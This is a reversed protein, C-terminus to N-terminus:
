RYLTVDGAKIISKGNTCRGTVKWVYVDMKALQGKVYGDWGVNIDESRYILEGWRNYIELVYDEVGEYVPHFIETSPNYMDYHGGSPGSTNPKFANPFIIKCTEDVRLANEKLMLDHCQPETNRTVLLSIDYIGPSAYYYVPEYETSTNGDGFNWLYFDGLESTNILVLPEEPINIHAKQLSFRARPNEFVEIYHYTTDRGGDGIAILMVQYLGHDVFTHEPEPDTSISGDDFIWRYTHAYLSHNSFKVTLPECGTTISEFEAEPVPSTITVEQTYMSQCHENSAFLAVVYTKTSMDNPDWIYTHTFPDFINTQHTNGDGFEWHFNWYGDNTLNNLTITADPYAQKKPLATFHAIPAPFVKVEKQITDTCGYISEAALEITFVKEDIEQNHFIHLPNASTSYTGDNMDWVYSNALSSQNLFRLTLPSCGEWINNETTFDATVEPFVTIIQQTTAECGFESNTWLTLTFNVPAQHTNSFTHSFEGEMDHQTGEGLDWLIESAGVSINELLPSFPSCGSLESITFEAKPVPRVVIEQSTSSSCGYHSQALLNITFTASETHSYNTFAMQPHTNQSTNGNGFDWFYMDGGQTLNQFSTQHIHCGENDTTFGAHIEPYIVIQQSYSNSCGHLNEVLLTITFVGPGQGAAQTYDHTFHNQSHYLTDGDGMSWIFSEAGVAFNHVNVTHPGCAPVNPTSFFAMPRPHVTIQHWTTDSCANENYAVLMVTYITDQTHSFNHFTHSHLPQLNQSTHGNGYDWLYASTATAGESLNTFDVTLPHCGQTVNPEFAATINPYIVVQQVLTDSCLFTNEVFLQINFYGPGTGPDHDYNHYVEPEDYSFTGSGDGFDWSYGTAGVSSHTIEITHPSCGPTNEVLFSALPKPYVQVQSSGWAFCGHLSQAFLEVHYLTDHTHSFNHFQHEPSYGTHTVGDGFTWFFYNAYQTANNFNVDLPHCGEEIHTYSLDVEPFVTITRVITDFCNFSNRAILEIDFTIVDGTTNTFLWTLYDASADTTMSHQGGFDWHLESAGLSHNELVMLFPSCGQNNEITFDARIQPYVTIQHHISDRCLYESQTYLWVDFTAVDTYSTNEFIHVPNIAVSSGGDGFEWLHGNDPVFTSGNAFEVELPSCGETISPTFAAIIKPFITVPRILTDSCLQPNSVILQINYIQPDALDHDFLHYLTDASSFSLPSGDGFDWIYDHAGESTNILMVEYPNCSQAPFFDFGAKLRPHITIDISISDRCFYDSKVRLWVTRVISTDTNNIFTHWVSDTAASSGGDGFDWLIETATITSLNAFTVEFPSCGETESAWLDAIVNPYVQLTTSHSDNCHENSVQQQILFELIGDTNNEFTIIGPHAVDSVVGNGFDWSYDTAGIAISAFDVELPHCGSIPNLTFGAEIYPYVTVPISVTQTCLFTSSVVTLSVNYITDNASTNYFTHTPHTQVSFTGDGFDWFYMAVLGQTQNEFEVTVPSCGETPDIAIFQPIVPPWIKVKRQRSHICGEASIAVLTITYEVVETTIPYSYVFSSDATTHVTNGDGFDWIYSVAGLSHNAFHVVNSECVNPLHLYFQSFVFPLIEFPKIAFNTCDNGDTYEYMIYYNGAGIDAPLFNSFNIYPLNLVELNTDLLYYTGGPPNGGSLSYGPTNGCVKITDPEAPFFVEPLDNVTVTVSAYVPPSFPPPFNADTVEVTYVTTQTPSVSPLSDTVDILSFDHPDSTWFFNYDGSGGGPLVWLTTSSGACIAGPLGVVQTIHLDGGIVNVIVDDSLQCGTDLDVVTLTFITTETLNVTEPNPINPNNLLDAPQWSYAYNGSGPIGAQLQASTNVAITTDQGANTEPLAHVVVTSSSTASCGNATFTYHITHTGPPALNTNFQNNQVFPGSYIGGAPNAGTLAQWGSLDCFEMSSWTIVPTPHITLVQEALGGCGSVPDIFEYSVIHNGPGLVSPEIIQLFNEVGNIYYTGGAPSGGTLFFEPSDQCVPTFPPLTVEFPIDFSSVHFSYPANGTRCFVVSHPGPTDYCLNIVNNSPVPLQEQCDLFYWLNGQATTFAISVSTAGPHLTIILEICNFNNAMGCCPDNPTTSFSQWTATPSSTLDVALVPTNGACQQAQVAMPQSLLFSLVVMVLYGLLINIKGPRESATMGRLPCNQSTAAPTNIEKRDVSLFLM